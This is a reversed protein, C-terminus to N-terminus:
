TKDRDVEPGRPSQEGGHPLSPERGWREAVGTPSPSRVFGPGKGRAVRAEHGDTSVSTWVCPRITLPAATSTWESPQSLALGLIGSRGSLGNWGRVLGLLSDM